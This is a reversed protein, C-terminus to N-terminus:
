KITDCIRRFAFTTLSFDIYIRLAWHIEEVFSLRFYSSKFLESNGADASFKRFKDFSEDFKRGGCFWQWNVPCHSETIRAETGDRKVRRNSVSLWWFLYRNRLQLEVARQRPRRSDSVCDPLIISTSTAYDISTPRALHKRKKKKKRRHKLFSSHNIPAFM